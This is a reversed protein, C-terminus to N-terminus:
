GIKDCKKKKHNKERTTSYCMKLPTVQLNKRDIIETNKRVFKSTNTSKSRTLTKERKKYKM